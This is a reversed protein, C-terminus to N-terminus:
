FPLDDAVAPINLEAANGEGVPSQGPINAIAARSGGRFQGASKRVFKRQTADVLDYKNNEDYTMVKPDEPREVFGLVKGGVYNVKPFNKAIIYPGNKGMRKEGCIKFRGRKGVLLEAIRETTMKGLSEGPALVSIMHTLKSQTYKLSDEGIYLRETHEAGTGDEVLVICIFPIKKESRAKEEDNWDRVEAVVYNSIGAKAYPKQESTDKNEEKVVLLNESLNLEM